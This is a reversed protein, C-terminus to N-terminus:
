LDPHDIDVAGVDLLGQDGDRPLVEAEVTVFPEAPPSLLVILASDPRMPHLADADRRHAEESLADSIKGVRGALGFTLPCPGM